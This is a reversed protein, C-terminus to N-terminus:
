LEWDQEYAALWEQRERWDPMAGGVTRWFAPSHNRHKLHSLEHVIVYELVARPLEVLQRNLRINGDKGCSAWM